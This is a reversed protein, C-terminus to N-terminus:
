LEYSNMELLCQRAADCKLLTLRNPLAVFCDRLWSVATAPLVVSGDCARLPRSDIVTYSSFILTWVRPTNTPVAVLEDWLAAATDLQLTSLSMSITLLYVDDISNENGGAVVKRVERLVLNTAGLRSALGLDLTVQRRSLGEEIDHRGHAIAAVLAERWLSKDVSFFKLCEKPIHRELGLWMGWTGHRACPLLAWEFIAKPRLGFYEMWGGFRSSGESIDQLHKHYESSTLLLLAACETVISLCMESVIQAKSRVDHAPRVAFAAGGSPLIPSVLSRDEPSLLSAARPHHYQLRRLLYQMLDQRQTMSTLSATLFLFFNRQQRQGPIDCLPVRNSLALRRKIESGSSPLWRCNVPVLLGSKPVIALFADSRKSISVHEISKTPENVCDWTCTVSNEPRYRSALTRNLTGEYKKREDVGVLWIVDFTTPLDRLCKLVLTMVVTDDNLNEIRLIDDPSSFVVCEVGNSELAGEAKCPTTAVPDDCLTTDLLAINTSFHLTRFYELFSKHVFRVVTKATIIGLQERVLGSRLLDRADRDRADIEFFVGGRTMVSSSVCLAIVNEISSEWPEALTHQLSSKASRLKSDIARKYLSVINNIGVVGDTACWCLMELVIPLTSLAGLRKECIVGVVDDICVAVNRGGVLACQAVAHKVVPQSFYKKVYCVAETETWPNITAVFQSASLLGGREERSAVVVIDHQGFMHTPETSSGSTVADVADILQQLLPNTNSIVEDFGDVLWVITQKDSNRMKYFVLEVLAANSPTAGFSIYLLERPSLKAGPDRSHRAELHKAVESLKLLIVVGAFNQLQSLHIAWTTKGIGARGEVLLSKWGKSKTASLVETSEMLAGEYSEAATGRHTMVSPAHVIRLATYMGMRSLKISHGMVSTETADLEHYVNRLAVQLLQLPYDAYYRRQDTTLHHGDDERPDYLLFNRSAHGGVNPQLMSIMRELQDFRDNVTGLVVGGHEMLERHQRNRMNRDNLTIQRQQQQLQSLYQNTERQHRRQLLQQEKYTEMIRSVSTDLLHKIYDKAQSGCRQLQQYLRQVDGSVAKRVSEPLVDLVETIDTQKKLTTGNLEYMDDLKVHVDELVRRQRHLEGFLGSVEVHLVAIKGGLSHHTKDLAARVSVAEDRVIQKAGTIQSELGEHVSRELREIADAATRTASDLRQQLSQTHSGLQILAVSVDPHYATRTHVQECAVRVEQQLASLWASAVVGELQEKLGTSVASKLMSPLVNHVVDDLLGRMSQSLVSMTAQSGSLAVASVVSLVEERVADRTASQLNSCQAELQLTTMTTIEKMMHGLMAEIASTTTSGAAGITADTEAAVHDVSAVLQPLLHETLSDATLLQTSGMVQLMKRTDHVHTTQAHFSLLQNLMTFINHMETSQKQLLNLRSGANWLRTPTRSGNYEGLTKVTDEMVGLLRELLLHTSVEGIIIELVAPQMLVRLLLATQGCVDAGLELVGGPGGMVVFFLGSAAEVIQRGFPLASLAAIMQGGAASLASSWASLLRHVRSGHLSRAARENMAVAAETLTMSKTLITITSGNAAQQDLDARLTMAEDNSMWKMEITMSVTGDFASLQHLRAEKEYAVVFREAHLTTTNRLEGSGDSTMAVRRMQIYVHPAGERSPVEIYDTISCADEWHIPASPMVTMSTADADWWSPPLAGGKGEADWLTMPIFKKSGVTAGTSTGRLGVCMQLQYGIDTVHAHVSQVIIRFLSMAPPAANAAPLNM